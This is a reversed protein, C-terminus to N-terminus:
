EASEGILMMALQSVDLLACMHEVVTGALWPRKSREGRWRVDDPHLKISNFVTDVALGWDFGNISIVYAFQEQMQDSYREPMVLKATDVTRINTEKVPMLGMFWDAQGFLPTLGDTIPYISGLEVLPVALTLGGV